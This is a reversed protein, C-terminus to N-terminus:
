DRAIKRRRGPDGFVWHGARRMAGENGIPGAPEALGPEGGALQRAAAARQGAGQEARRSPGRSIGRSILAHRDGTPCQGVELAHDRYSQYSIVPVIHLARPRVVAARCRPAGGGRGRRLSRQLFAAILHGFHDIAVDSGPSKRGAMTPQMKRNVDSGPKTMSSTFASRPEPATASGSNTSSPAPLRSPMPKITNPM